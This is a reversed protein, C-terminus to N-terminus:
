PSALGFPTGIAFVPEGVRVAGSDGFVAPALSEAPLNARIVALDNGADMGTVEATATTGDRLEVVLRTAGQVVHRNTLIHGSRDIVIGSGTGM